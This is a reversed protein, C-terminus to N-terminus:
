NQTIHLTKSMVEFNYVGKQKYINIYKNNKPQVVLRLRIDLALVICLVILHATYYTNMCCDDRPFHYCSLQFSVGSGDLLELHSLNLKACLGQVNQGMM